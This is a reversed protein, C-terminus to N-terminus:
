SIAALSKEKRNNRKSANSKTKLDPQYFYFKERDAPSLNTEKVFSPKHTPEHPKAFTDYTHRCFNNYTFTEIQVITKKAGGLMQIFVM